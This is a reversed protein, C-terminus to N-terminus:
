KKVKKNHSLENTRKLLAKLETLLQYKPNFEYIRVNAYIRSKLVDTQEMKKLQNQVAFLPLKFKKAIGSAYCDGDKEVSLLIKELTKNGLINEIM